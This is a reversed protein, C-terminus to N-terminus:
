YVQSPILYEFDKITPLLVADASVVTAATLVKGAQRNTGEVADANPGNFALSVFPGGLLPPFSLNKAACL